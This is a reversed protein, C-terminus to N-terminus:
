LKKTENTLGRLIIDMDDFAIISSESQEPPMLGGAQTNFERRNPGTYDFNKRRRRDPGFFAGTDVFQRPKEIIQVIRAYLDRASYPKMLFETVGTDRATEVRPQESYGTMLIIPVFKNPSSDDKRIKRILDLGDLPEMLWDTIVLDHNYQQFLTYGEDVSKVGDVYKIGFINLISMTLSLMPQMDEVILVRVNNFQYTM